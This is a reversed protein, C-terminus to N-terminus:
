NPRVSAIGGLTSHSYVRIDMGLEEVSYHLLSIVCGCAPVHLFCHGQVMTM